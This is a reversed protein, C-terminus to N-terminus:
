RSKSECSPSIACHQFLFRRSFHDLFCDIRIGASNTKGCQITSDNEDIFLHDFDGYIQYLCELVTNLETANIGSLNEDEFNVYGFSLGSAKVINICLTSKGSRRVGIVVQALRSELNILNEEPRHCWDKCLLGEFEEKQDRLIAEIQQRKM